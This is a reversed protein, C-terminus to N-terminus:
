WLWATTHRGIREQTRCPGPLLLLRRLRRQHWRRPAMHLRDATRPCVPHGGHAHAIALSARRAVRSGAMREVGVVSQSVALSMEFQGDKAGGDHPKNSLQLM